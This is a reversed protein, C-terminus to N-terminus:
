KEFLPTSYNITNNDTPVLIFLIKVGKLKKINSILHPNKKFINYIFDRLIRNSSKLKSLKYRSPYGLYNATSDIFGEESTFRNSRIFTYIPLENVIQKQLDNLSTDQKIPNYPQCDFKNPVGDRGSDVMTKRLINQTGSGIRNWKNQM